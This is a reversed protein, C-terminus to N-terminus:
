DHNRPLWRRHGQYSMRGTIHTADIEDLCLPCAKYGKTKLGGLMGLGPFDSITWMVAAKMIFPSGVHRDFTCCGEDWLVKLEDILPRMFVNLCKGPSKPCSILLSLINFEKKMCKHPPLNYPILVIPWTSHSLGSAGFPNFGDTALGLRINRIESAFKPFEKDFNKWSEGDAPHRIYKPDTENRNAHWRMQSAIHPSMYLRQLRPTLPFYKVTKKPVKNKSGFQTYRTEGCVPCSLQNKLEKYYLVCGHECAHITEYGLGMYRLVKKVDKYSGPYNNDSPLIQKTNHLMKDFGKDSLRNEVKMQMARLITELVIHDCGKYLPTQAECVLNTYREYALISESDGDEHSTWTIYSNMMGNNILHVVMENTSIRGRVLLCKRCPCLHTKEGIQKAFEVFDVLGQIYRSDGRELGMWSKDM